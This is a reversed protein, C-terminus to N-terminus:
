CGAFWAALWHFLDDVEVSRDRDFDSELRQAFWDSLYSFIDPVSIATDGDHDARCSTGQFEYAGIDLAGNAGIGINPMGPDDHVRPLSALDLGHMLGPFTAAELWAADIAISNQRLRLDDDTTGVVGDPGLPDAFRPSADLNGFGAFTAGSALLEPSVGREVISSAIAYWGGGSSALHPATAAGTFISAWIRTHLSGANIKVSHGSLASNGAFTCNAVDTRGLWGYIAGGGPASNENFETNVVRVLSITNFVAGGGDGAANGIFRSARIDAGHLYAAGGFNLAINRHLTSREILVSGGLTGIGGGNAAQNDEITCGRITLPLWGSAVGVLVGGGMNWPNQESAFGGRIVLGDLVNLDGKTTVVHFANDGRNIFAPGDDGALDGSLVSLYALPDRANPEASEIGAFGGLLTAGSAVLFTSDRQASGRGPVYVGAAIKLVRSSTGVPLPFEMADQLDRFATQWSLGDGGAPADDDVYLELPQAHVAAATTLLSICAAARTLTSGSRVAHM